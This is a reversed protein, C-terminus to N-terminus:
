RWAAMTPRSAHAGAPERGCRGIRRRPHALVLRLAQVLSQHERGDRLGREDLCIQQPRQRRDGGRLRLRRGADTKAGYPLRALVRPMTLGIYRSDESERLSQWPAYDPPPSIKTLDRPNTLEQWSEMRFLAACGRRHVAHALRRSIKSMNRLLGVDTPRQDFEYDGVLCGFPEGGFMSYENTYLKKFIPSQDWATGEFKELTKALEKKSINMVRIKLM